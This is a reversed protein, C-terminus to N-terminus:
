SEVIEEQCPGLNDKGHEQDAIDANGARGLGGALDVVGATRM